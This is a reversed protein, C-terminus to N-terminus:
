PQRPRAAEWGGELVHVEAVGTLRLRLAVRRSSECSASCYVVVPQGPQWKALFEPLLTDWTDENLLIAGAVHGADFEARPRADVWAVERKWGRVTEISVLEGTAPDTATPTTRARYATPPHLWWQAVAPLLAALCIALIGKM